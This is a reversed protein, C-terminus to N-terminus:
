CLSGPPNAQDAIRQYLKLSTAALTSASFRALFDARGARGMRARLGADRALRIMADALAGADGPAVLLGTSGHTVVEPVGGALCGIVPLAHSMAEVYILGFSEYRSPAVM